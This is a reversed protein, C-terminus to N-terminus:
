LIVEVLGRRNGDRDTAFFQELLHDRTETDNPAVQEIDFEFDRHLARLRGALPGEPDFGIAHVLVADVDQPDEKATVFSGNLYLAWAGAVQAISILEQLPDALSARKHSTVCFRELIELPTARHIGLPLRGDVFEPIAMEVGKDRQQDMTIMGCMIYRTLRRSATGSHPDRM